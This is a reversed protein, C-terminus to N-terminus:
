LVATALRVKAVAAVTGAERSADPIEFLASHLNPDFKANIPDYREVGHRKLVNLMISEVAQVGELLGKLSARVKEGDPAADTM